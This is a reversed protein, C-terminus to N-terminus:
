GMGQLTDIVLGLRDLEFREADTLLRRKARELYVAHRETLVQLARDRM